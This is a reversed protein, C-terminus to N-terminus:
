SMGRAIASGSLDGLIKKGSAICALMFKKEEALWPYLDEDYVSMPGGMVILVDFSSIEPLSYSSEFFRTCTITHGHDSLSIEMYGLGEFPVHQLYYVKM